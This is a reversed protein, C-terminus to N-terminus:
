PFRLRGPCTFGHDGQVGGAMRFHRTSSRFSLLSRWGRKVLSWGSVPSSRGALRSTRRWTWIRTSGCRAPRSDFRWTVRAARIRLGPKSGDDVIAADALQALENCVEDYISEQVYLRKIALCVQGSNQFAGNFIGKAVTAPVADDLVMGADNGGLEILLKFSEM